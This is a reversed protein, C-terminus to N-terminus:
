QPAPVSVSQRYKVSQGHRKAPQFRWAKAVSMSMTLMLASRISSPARRLKVSEVKGSEDIVLDFTLMEDDHLVTAVTPSQPYAAVPAAVDTDLASYIRAGPALEFLTIPPAAHAATTSSESGTQPRVESAALTGGTWAATPAPVPPEFELAAQQVPATAEADSRTAAAPVPRTSGTTRRTVEAAASPAAAASSSVNSGLASSGTLDQVARDTLRPLRLAVVAGLVIAVGVCGAVVIWRSRAPRGTPAQPEARPPEEAPLHSTREREQRPQLPTRGATTEWREYVGRIITRRDPREFYSLAESLGNVSTYHPPSSVAQSIVLRLPVPVTDPLLDRLLGGLQCVASPGDQLGAHLVFVSGASDVKVLAATLETAAQRPSELLLRSVEQVIAVGEHWEVATGSTRLTALSVPEPTFGSLADADGTILIPRPSM